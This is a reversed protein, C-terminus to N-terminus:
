RLLARTFELQRGCPGAARPWSRNRWRLPGYLLATALQLSYGSGVARGDAVGPLPVFACELFLETPKQQKANKLVAEAEWTRSIFTHM